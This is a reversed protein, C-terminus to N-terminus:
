VRLATNVGLVILVHNRNEGRKLFYAALERVQHKNRIPQTTKM